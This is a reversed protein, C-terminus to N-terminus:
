KGQVQVEKQVIVQVQILAYVERPDKDMLTGGSTLLMGGDPIRYTGRVTLCKMSPAVNTQKQPMLKAFSAGMNLMVTGSETVVPRAWAIMVSNAQHIEVEKEITRIFEVTEGATVYVQQGDMALLKAECLKPGALASLAAKEAATVALLRKQKMIQAMVAATPQVFSVHVSVMKRRHKRLDKLLKEVRRHTEPLHTAVIMGTRGRIGHGTGEDWTGPEIVQKILDVLEYLSEEPTLPEEDDEVDAFLRGTREGTETERHIGHPFDLTPAMYDPVWMILDRVDYVKTVPREGAEEQAAGGAGCVWLLTVFVVMVVGGQRVM